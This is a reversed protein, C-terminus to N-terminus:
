DLVDAQKLPDNGAIRWCLWDSPKVKMAECRERLLALEDEKQLFISLPSLRVAKTAATNIMAVYYNHRKRATKKKAETENNKFHLAVTQMSEILFHSRAGSNVAPMDPCKTMQIGRKDDGLPLVNILTGSVDIEVQWRISRTTFGQESDGLNKQAYEVLHQLM